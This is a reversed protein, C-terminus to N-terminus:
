LLVLSDAKLVAKMVDTVAVLSVAKKVGREGVM